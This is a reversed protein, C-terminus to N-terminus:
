QVVERLKLTLEGSSATVIDGYQVTFNEFDSHLDIYDPRKAGNIFLNQETVDIEVLSGANFAGTLSITERGNTIELNNVAQGIQVTILEPVIEYVSKIGVEGSTEVADAYKYPDSCFLTFRGVINLKSPDITESGSYIGYYTYDPDDAFYISVEEKSYLLERLKDFKDQMEKPTEAALQYEIELERSGQRVGLFRSGSRKPYAESSIENSLMERGYVNLTEYGDLELEFIKGNFVMANSPLPTETDSNKKISSYKM